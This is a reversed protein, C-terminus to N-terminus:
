IILDYYVVSVHQGKLYNKIPFCPEVFVPFNDRMIEHIEDVITNILNIINHVIDVESKM